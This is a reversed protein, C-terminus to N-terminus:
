CRDELAALVRHLLYVCKGYDGRLVCYNLPILSTCDDISGGIAIGLTGDENPPLQKVRIGHSDWQDWITEGIEGAPIQMTAPEPKPEEEPM